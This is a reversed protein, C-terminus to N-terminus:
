TLCTCALFAPSQSESPPPAYYSIRAKTGMFTYWMKTSSLQHQVLRLFIWYHLGLEHAEDFYMVSITKEPLVTSLFEVLNETAKRADLEYFHAAKSVPDFESPPLGDKGRVPSKIKSEVKSKMQWLISLASPRFFFSIVSKIQETSWKQLFRTEVMVCGLQSWLSTGIRSYSCGMSGMRM